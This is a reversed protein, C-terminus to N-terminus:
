HSQEAQRGCREGADSGCMKRVTAEIGRPWGFLTLVLGQTLNTNRKETHRCVGKRKCPLSEGRMSGPSM